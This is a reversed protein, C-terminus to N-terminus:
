HTHSHSYDIDEDDDGSPYKHLILVALLTTIPVTLILGVSGVLSRIIETAFIERNVISLIGSDSLSFLLLLPLAAGTYALVLTNILAGVHEKGVRMAKKYVEKKDKIGTGFLERVVAVQTVAIDDLVGLAGIIIGALLLGVFDLQGATNLNLYVSEDSAFGTLGTSDISFIALLGTLTVAILTGLYAIASRRNFGHTFFIACFLVAGAVAISVPIPSYGQVLTPVLVYIIVLLSGALSLLSRFGQKGGFILVTAVFILFVFTMSARRDVERVSFYEQDEFNVIHNLYFKDGESLQIFDNEFTIFEGKRPGDLIKVDLTQVRNEVDTGPVIITKENAVEIVQARLINQVDQYLEQGYVPTTFLISLLFILIFNRM